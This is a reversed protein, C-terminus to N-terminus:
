NANLRDHIKPSAPFHSSTICSLYISHQIFDPLCLIIFLHNGLIVQNVM